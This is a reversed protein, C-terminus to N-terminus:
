FADMPDPYMDIQRSFKESGVVESPMGLPEGDNDLGIDAYSCDEAGTDDIKIRHLKWGRVVKNNVRFRKSENSQHVSKIYNVLSLRDIRITTRHKYKWRDLKADLADNSIKIWEANDEFLSDYFSELYEDWPSQADLQSSISPMKVSAESLTGYKDVIKEYSEKGIRMLLHFERKQTELDNNLRDIEGKPMLKWTDNASTIICALRRRFAGKDQIYCPKNSGIYFIPSGSVMYPNSYLEKIPFDVQVGGTIAKLYEWFEGKTPSEDYDVFLADAISLMRKSDYLYQERCLQDRKLVFSIDADYYETIMKRVIQKVTTKLSGGKDQHLISIVPHKNFFMAYLWATVFARQDADMPDLYVKILNSHEYDLDGYAKDDSEWMERDFVGFAPESGDVSVSVPRKDIHGLYEQYNELINAFYGRKTPAAGSATRTVFGQFVKHEHDDDGVFINYYKYLKLSGFFISAPLRTNLFKYVLLSVVNEISTPVNDGVELYDKLSKTAVSGDANRSVPIQLKLVEEPGMQEFEQMKAVFTSMVDLQGKVYEFVDPLEQTRELRAAVVDNARGSVAGIIEFGGNPKKRYVTSHEDTYLGSCWDGDIVNFPKAPKWMPNEVLKTDLGTSYTSAKSNGAVKMTQTAKKKQTLNVLQTKITEALAQREGSVTVYVSSHETAITNLISVAADDLTRVNGDPCKYKRSKAIYSYHACITAILNKVEETFEM